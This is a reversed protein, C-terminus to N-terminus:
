FCPAGCVSRLLPVCAIVADAAASFTTLQVIRPYFCARDGKGKKETTLLVQTSALETALFILIAAGCQGVVSVAAVVAGFLLRSGVPPLSSPLVGEAAKIAASAVYLSFVGAGATCM